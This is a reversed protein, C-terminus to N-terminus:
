CNLDEWHAIQVAGQALGLCHVDAVDYDWDAACSERAAVTASEVDAAEVTSIWITGNGTVEQCFATYIM